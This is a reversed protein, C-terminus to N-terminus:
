SAPPPIIQFTDIVQAFFFKMYEPMSNLIFEWRLSPNQSTDFYQYYYARALNKVDDDASDLIEDVAWVAKGRRIQILNIKCGFVLPKRPNYQTIASFLIGQVNAEKGLDFLIDADYEGQHNIDMSDIVAMHEKDLVEQYPIIDFKKSKRLQLQLAANVEALQNKPLPYDSLNKVPVYIIRRIEGERLAPDVYYNDAVYRPTIAVAMRDQLRLDSCGALFSFSLIYALSCLAVSWLWHIFLRNM